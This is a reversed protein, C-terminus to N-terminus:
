QRRESKESNSGKVVLYGGHSIGLLAVISEPLDPLSVGTGLLRGNSLADSLVFVYAGIVAVTIWLMQVKGFDLTTADAVEEGRFLDGASADAPSANKVLLGQAKDIEELQDNVGKLQQTASELESQLANATINLASQDEGTAAAAAAQQRNLERTTVAIRDMLNRRDRNLQVKTTPSVDQKRKSDKIGTAFAFSGVSIGLAVLVADPISVKLADGVSVESAIRVLVVALWASIVVTTWAAVQLRSLSYRNQADILAGFIQGNVVFGALVILLAMGGALVLWATTAASHVNQPDGGRVSVEGDVWLYVLGTLVIPLGLVIAVFLARRLM